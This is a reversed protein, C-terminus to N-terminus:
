TGEQEKFHNEAEEVFTAFFLGKNPTNKGILTFEEIPIDLNKNDNQPIKKIISFVCSNSHIRFIGFNTMQDLEFEFYNSSNFILNLSSNIQFEGEFQCIGVLIKKNYTYNLPVYLSVRGFQNLELTLNTVCTPFESINELAFKTFDISECIKSTFNIYDPFYCFLYNM